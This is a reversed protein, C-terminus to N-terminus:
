PDNDLAGEDLQFEGRERAQLLAKARVVQSAPVQLRVGGTAHMLWPNAQAMHLDAPVARIGESELFSQLLFAEGPELLRAITVLDDSPADNAM